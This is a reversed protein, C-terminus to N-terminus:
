WWVTARKYNAEQKCRCYYISSPVMDLTTIWIRSKPDLAKNVGPDPISFFGSGPNAVSVM